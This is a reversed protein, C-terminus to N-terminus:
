IDGDKSLWDLVKNIGKIVQLSIWYIGYTTTEKWNM